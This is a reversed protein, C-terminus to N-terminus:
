VRKKKAYCPSLIVIKYEKYEPYFEKIIKMTHMMPSDAPALYKLLEPHELEIKTVIAPCAQAIVVKPNEKKIYDLYSKVTIEAGFSVDFVAKVGISKLWGNINLFTDPFNSAIAPAAIAVINEKKNIGNIFQEFDDIGYRADHPCKKICEGCGICKNEDIDVKEDVGRNCLKIPCVSICVHCNKCKEENIGIVKSLEKKMLFGAEM